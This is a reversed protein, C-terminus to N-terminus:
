RNWILDGPKFNNDTTRVTSETNSGRLSLAPLWEVGKGSGDMELNHSLNLKRRGYMRFRFIYFLMLSNLTYYLWSEGPPVLFFFWYRSGAVGNHVATFIYGVHREISRIWIGSVVTRHNPVGTWSYLLIERPTDIQWWYLIDKFLEHTRRNKVSEWDINVM